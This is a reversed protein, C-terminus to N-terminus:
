PTAPKGSGKMKQQEEYMQLYEREMTAFKDALEAYAAQQAEQQKRLAEKEEADKRNRELEQTLLMSIQEQLFQNEEEIVAIVTELEQNSEEVSKLTLELKEKDTLEAEQERLLAALETIRKEQTAIITRINEVGRDIGSLTGAISDGDTGVPASVQQLIDTFADEVNELQESMQRNEQELNSLLTKLEPSQEEAPVARCVEVQLQEGRANNEALQRKMDFFLDRFREMNAMRKEYARLQLRLSEILSSESDEKGPLLPSLLKALVGWLRDEDAGAQDVARQEAKLFRLRMEVISKEGATVSDSDNMGALRADTQLIAQQLNELYQDIGPSAEVPSADDAPSSHRSRFYLYAAYLLAILLAELVALTIFVSLDM